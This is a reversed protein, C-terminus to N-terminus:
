QLNNLLLLFSVAIYLEEPQRRNNIFLSFFGFFLLSLRSFRIKAILRSSICHFFTSFISLTQPLCKSDPLGSAAHSRNLLSQTGVKFRPLVLYRLTFWSATSALAARDFSLRFLDRSRRSYSAATFRWCNSALPNARSFISKPSHGDVSFITSSFFWADFRQALLSWSAEMDQEKLWISGHWVVDEM